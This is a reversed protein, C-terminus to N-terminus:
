VRGRATRAIRSPAVRGRTTTGRPISSGARGGSSATTDASRMTAGTAKVGSAGAGRVSSTTRTVTARAAPRTTTRTTGRVSSITGRLNSIGRRTTTGRKKQEAAALAAARAAAAEQEQRLREEYEKREREIREEEERMFEIDADGGQWTPDELLRRTHEAQSLISIWIDLLRDTQDITQSFQQFRGRVAQMNTNIGEMGRNMKKLTELERIREERIEPDDDTEEEINETPQSQHKLKLNHQHLLVRRQLQHASPLPIDPFDPSYDLLSSDHPMQQELINDDTDLSHSHDVALLFSDDESTDM